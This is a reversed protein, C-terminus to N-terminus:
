VDSKGHVLVCSVCGVSYQTHGHWCRKEEMAKIEATLRDVIRQAADRTHISMELVSRKSHLEREYDM